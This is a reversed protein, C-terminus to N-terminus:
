HLAKIYREANRFMDTNSQGWVEVSAPPENFDRMFAKDTM